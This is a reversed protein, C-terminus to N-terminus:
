RATELARDIWEDTLDTIAIGLHSLQRREWSAGYSSTWGPIFWGQKFHGSKFIPLYFDNLLPMCYKGANEPSSNQWATRLRLIQEEYPVQNFVPRGESQLAAITANFVQINAEISGRGGTSIPGCVMDAGDAFKRLEALAIPVLAAFSGANACADRLVAIDTDHHM